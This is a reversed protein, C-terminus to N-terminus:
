TLIIITFILNHPIYLQLTLLCAYLHLQIFNSAETKGQESLMIIQDVIHKFYMHFIIKTASILIHLFYNTSLVINFVCDFM